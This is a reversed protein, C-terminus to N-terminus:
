SYLGRELGREKISMIKTMAYLTLSTTCSVLIGMPKRHFYM